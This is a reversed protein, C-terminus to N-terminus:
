GVHPDTMAELLEHSIDKQLQALDGGCRNFPVLAYITGGDEAHFACATPKADPADSFDVTMGNTIVLFIRNPDDSPLLHQGQFERIKSLALATTLTGTMPFVYDGMRRSGSWVGYQRVVPEFGLPADAGSVHGILSDVYQHAVA